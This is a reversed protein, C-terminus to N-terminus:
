QWEPLLFFSSATHTHAHTRTHTHTHTHIRTRTRTRTRTVIVQFSSSHRVFPLCPALCECTCLLFFFVSLDLGTEDILRDSGNQCFFFFFLSHIHTHTDTFSSLYLQRCSRFLAWERHTHTHPPPPPPPPNHNHNHVHNCAHTGYDCVEAKTNSFLSANNPYKHHQPRTHACPHTGARSHRHLRTLTRRTTTGFFMCGARVLHEHVVVSVPLSELKPKSGRLLELKLKQTEVSKSRTGLCHGPMGRDALRAPTM